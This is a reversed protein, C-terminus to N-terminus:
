AVITVVCGAPLIELMTPATEGFYKFVIFHQSDQAVAVSLLATEFCLDSTVPLAAHGTDLAAPFHESAGTAPTADVLRRVVTRGPTLISITADRGVTDNNVITAFIIEMPCGVAPDFQLKHDGANIGDNLFNRLVVVLTGGLLNRKVPFSFVGQADRVMPPHIYPGEKDPETDAWCYGLISSDLLRLKRKVEEFHRMRTVLEDIAQTPDKAIWTKGEAM